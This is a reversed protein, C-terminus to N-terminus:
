LRPKGSCKVKDEVSDKQEVLCLVCLVLLGGDLIKLPKRIMHELGSIPNKARWTSIRSSSLLGGRYPVRELHSTHTPGLGEKMRNWLTQLFGLVTEGAPVGAATQILKM